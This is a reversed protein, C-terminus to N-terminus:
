SHIQGLPAGRQLEPVVDARGDGPRHCEACRGFMIPAVDKNFTVTAAGKSSPKASDNSAAVSGIILAVGLLLVAVLSLKRKM